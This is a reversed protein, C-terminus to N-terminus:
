KAEKMPDEEPNLYTIGWPGTGHLQFVTEEKTFAFMPLGSPLIAISGAPLARAKKPEFRDGIGLYLTGSIVTVRETVPHTHVAIKFNAPAKIFSTFHSFDKMTGEITAIKAGPGLSPADSWQLEAPTLMIYAPLETRSEQTQAFTEGAIAVAALCFLATLSTRKSM